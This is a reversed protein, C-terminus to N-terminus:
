GPSNVRGRDTKRYGSPLKSKLPKGCDSPTAVIKKKKKSNQNRTPCPNECVSPSFLFSITVLM